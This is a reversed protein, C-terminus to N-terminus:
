EKDKSSDLLLGQVKLETFQREDVEVDVEPQITTRVIKPWEPAAAAKANSM